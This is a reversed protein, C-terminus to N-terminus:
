GARMQAGQANSDPWYRHLLIALATARPSTLHVRVEAAGPPASPTLMYIDHGALEAPDIQRLNFFPSASLLGQPSTIATLVVDNGSATAERICQLVGPDSLTFDWINGLAPTAQGSLELMLHVNPSRYM